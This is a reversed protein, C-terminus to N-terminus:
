LQSSQAQQSEAIRNFSAQLERLRQDNKYARQDNRADIPKLCDAIALVAQYLILLQSPGEEEQQLCTKVKQTFPLYAEHQFVPHHQIPNSLFMKYLVVLDQLIVEQLYFLLNIAGIAALDNIQGVQPSFWGKQIDLELSITLLLVNPPAVSARYIEFCGIQPAYGAMIRIFEQLLLNLYCSVIQEQNQRSTRRIQDKSVGKLEAM